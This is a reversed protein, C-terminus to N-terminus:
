DLLAHTDARLRRYMIEAAPRHEPPYPLGLRQVMGDLIEQFREDFLVTGTLLREAVALKAASAERGCQRLGPPSHM